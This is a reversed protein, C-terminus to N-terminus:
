ENESKEREPVPDEKKQKGGTQTRKTQDSQPQSTGPTNSKTQTYKIQDTKIQDEWPVKKIQTQNNQGTHM